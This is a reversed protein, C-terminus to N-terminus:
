KIVVNPYLAPDFTEGVQVNVVKISGSGIAQRKADVKAKIAAWADKDVVFREIVSLDTIDTAKSDIGFTQLNDLKDLTGGVLAKVFTEAPVDTLKLVSTLVYGPQQEDLNADVQISLRGVEKAKSSIGDGVVGAVAFVANANNDYFTGAITSGLAPDSFGADNKALYEYKVGLETAADNMGQIFGYGFVLIGNSNTGGVFGAVRAADPPVMKYGDGFLKAQEENVLVYLYGALYSPENVNFLVSYVNKHKVNGAEDVNPNDNFVIFTTNPYQEAIPKAGGVGNVLAEFDYEMSFVLNYGDDALTELANPVGSTPEIIQAHFGNEGALQKVKEVLAKNYGTDNQGAASCVVGVKLDSTKPGTGTPQDGGSCATLVMVAVLLLVVIKSVKKINM